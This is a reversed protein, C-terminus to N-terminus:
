KRGALPRIAPDGFAFLAADLAADTFEDQFTGSSHTRSVQFPGPPSPLVGACNRVPTGGHRARDVNGTVTWNTVGNVAYGYGLDGQLVNHSVVAGSLSPAGPQCTWAQSGMAIGVLIRRGAGDIVNSDVVTGTYDARDVMAIGGLLGRTEARITNGAVISGAAGFIVIGGDTADIITNHHVLSNRCALSIGDAWQGNPQGAPGFENHALTAGTCAGRDGEWLHVTSWSRTEFARVYEVQQGSADGGMNIMAEADPLRGLATRNGDVILHSVRVRSRGRLLLATALSPEVIRLMARTSDTPFGQTYIQQGDRTFVISAHLDFVAGPCLVATGAPGSLAANITKEDGSPLCRAGAITPAVPSEHACAQAIAVVAIALASLSRVRFM